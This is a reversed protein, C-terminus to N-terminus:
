YFNSAQPVGYLVPHEDSIKFSVRSIYYSRTKQSIAGLKKKDWVFCLGVHDYNTDAILNTTCRRDKFTKSLMAYIEAKNIGQFSYNCFSCRHVKQFQVGYSTGVSCKCGRLPIVFVGTM